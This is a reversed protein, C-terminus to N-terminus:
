NKKNTIQWTNQKRKQLSEHAFIVDGNAFIDRKKKEIQFIRYRDIDIVDIGCLRRGFNGELLRSLESM